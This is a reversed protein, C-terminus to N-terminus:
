RGAAHGHGDGLARDGPLRQLHLHRRRRRRRRRVDDAVDEAVDRRAELLHLDLVDRARSSPARRPSPASPTRTTRARPKTLRRRRSRREASAGACADLRAALDGRVAEEERADQPGADRPRVRGRRRTTGRRRPPRLSTAALWGASAAAVAAQSGPACAQVSMRTGHDVTWAKTRPPAPAGGGARSADHGAGHARRPARPLGGAGRAAAAAGRVADRGGPEGAHASAPDGGRGRRAPAPARLVEGRERSGDGGPAADRAPVVLGDRARVSLVGSRACSRTPDPSRATGTRSSATEMQLRALVAAGLPGGRAGRKLPLACRAGGRSM